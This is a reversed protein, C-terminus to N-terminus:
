RADRAAGFSSVLGAQENINPVPITFSKFEEKNINPQGSPRQISRVWAAYRDTKTYLYVFEPLIRAADFRFRICYGAFIAPGLASRYLFTKGATAGSRAFLM